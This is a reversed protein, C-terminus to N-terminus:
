PNPELADAGNSLRLVITNRGADSAGISYCTLASDFKKENGYFNALAEIGSLIRLNSKSPRKLAKWLM